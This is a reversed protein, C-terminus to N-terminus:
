SRALALSQGGLAITSTDIEVLRERIRLVTHEGDPDAELEFEVTSPRGADPTVPMWTFVLRRGVEVDDIVGTRTVGDGRTRISGGVELTLEVEDDLWECLAAADSVFPWIDEPLGDLTEVIEIATM